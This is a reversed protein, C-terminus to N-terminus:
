ASVRGRGRLRNRRPQLPEAFLHRSAGYKPGSGEAADLRARLEKLTSFRAAYSTANTSYLPDIRKMGLVAPPPIGDGYNSAVLVFFGDADRYLEPHDYDESGLVTPRPLLAHSRAKIKWEEAFRNRNAIIAPTIESDLALTSNGWYTGGYLDPRATAEAATRPAPQSATQNATTMTQIRDHNTTTQHKPQAPQAPQAAAYGAHGRIPQARRATKYRRAVLRHRPPPRIM